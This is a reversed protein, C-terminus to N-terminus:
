HASAINSNYPLSLSSGTVSHIFLVYLAFTVTKVKVLFARIDSVNKTEESQSFLDAAANTRCVRSFDADLSADLKSHVVDLLKSLKMNKHHM